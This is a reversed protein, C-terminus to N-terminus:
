RPTELVKSFTQVSERNIGKAIAISVNKAKRISLVPNREMFSSFWGRCDRM